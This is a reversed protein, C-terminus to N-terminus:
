WTVFVAEEVKTLDDLSDIPRDTAAGHKFVKLKQESAPVPEPAPRWTSEYMRNEAMKQYIKEKVDLLTDTGTAMIHIHSMGGAGFAVANVPWGKDLGIDAFTQQDNQVTDMAHVVFHTTSVLLAACLWIGYKKM